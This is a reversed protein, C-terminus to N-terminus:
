QCAARSPILDKANPDRDDEEPWMVFTEFSFLGRVANRSDHRVRRISVIDDGAYPTPFDFFPIVGESVLPLETGGKMIAICQNSGMAVEGMASFDDFINAPMAYKSKYVKAISYASVRNGSTVWARLMSSRYPEGRDHEPTLFRLFFDGTEKESRVLLRPIEVGDKLTAACPYFPRRWEDRCPRLNDRLFSTIHICDRALM